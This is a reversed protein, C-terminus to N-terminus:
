EKKPDVFMFTKPYIKGFIILFQSKKSSPVVSVFEDDDEM